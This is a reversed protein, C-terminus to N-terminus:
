KCLLLTSFNRIVKPAFFFGLFLSAEVFLALGNVVASADHFEQLAFQTTIVVILVITNIYVVAFIEKSENLGKIKIRRTHFAIFLAIIQLLVKYAALATSHILGGTTVACDYVYYDIVTGTTQLPALFLPLPPPLPPM